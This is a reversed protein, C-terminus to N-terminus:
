IVLLGALAWIFIMARKASNSIQWQSPQETRPLMARAGSTGGIPISAMCRGATRQVSRKVMMTLTTNLPNSGWSPIDRLNDWYSWLGLLSQGLLSTGLALLAIANVSAEIFLMSTAGYCIILFLASVCNIYWSNPFSRKSSTLLRINTNFVLRNEQLLSWRLSISHVYAVGELYQTLIINIVFSLLESSLGTPLVNPLPTQFTVWFVIGRIACALSCLIAIIIVLFCQFRTDSEIKISPLLDLPEDKASIKNLHSHEDEEDLRSLEDLTM